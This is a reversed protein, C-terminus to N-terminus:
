VDQDTFVVRGRVRAAPLSPDGARLRRLADRKSAGTVVLVAVPATALLPLCLTIRQPPPKPADDVCVAAGTAELAPHGPFLSAVHGDEGMGLLLADLVGDFEHAIARTVRSLAAECTEGDVWLPIEGGVPAAPGLWGARHAAGRNSEPSELPVRREDVWTVRLRRWQDPGLRARLPALAAAASGGAVALRPRPGAARLHLALAEAAASPPDAVIRWRGPEAVSM